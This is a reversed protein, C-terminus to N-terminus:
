LDELDMIEYEDDLSDQCDDYNKNKEVEKSIIEDVTQSLSATRTLYDAGDEIEDKLMNDYTDAKIPERKEKTDDVRNDINNDYEVEDEDEYEDEDSGNGLRKFIIVNILIIVLVIGAAITGIKFYGFQKKLAEYRDNLKDYEGNDPAEVQEEKAKTKYGVYPCVEGSDENYIYYGANTEDDDAVLYILVFDFGEYSLGKVMVGNIDVEREEFGLNVLENDYDSKASYKVGDIDFTAEGNAPEEEKTDNNDTNGDSNDTNSTDGGVVTVTVGAASLDGSENSGYAVIASKGEKITDFYFTISKGTATVTNGNCAADAANSGVYQLVSTDFTFKMSSQVSNGAEDKATIYVNIREGQNVTENDMGIIMNGAAESLISFDPTLLVLGMVMMIGLCAKKVLVVIDKNIRNFLLM